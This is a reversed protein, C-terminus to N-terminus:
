QSHLTKSRYQTETIGEICLSRRSNMNSGLQISLYHQQQYLYQSRSTGASAGGPVQSDFDSATQSGDRCNM